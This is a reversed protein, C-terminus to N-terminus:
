EKVDDGSFLNNFMDGIGKQCSVEYAIKLMGEIPFETYTFEKGENSRYLISGDDNKKIKKITVVGNFTYTPFENVELVPSDDEPSGYYDVLRSIYDNSVQKINNMQDFITEKM